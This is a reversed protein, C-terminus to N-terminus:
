QKWFDDNIMTKVLSEISKQNGQWQKPDTLRKIKENLEANDPPMPASATHGSEMHPISKDQPKAGTKYLNEIVSKSKTAMQRYITRVVKNYESLLDSEGSSIAMQTRPNSIHKEWVPEAMQYDPDSQIAHQMRINAQYSQQQPRIIEEQYFDKVAKRVVGALDATQDYDQSYRNSNLMSELQGVRQELLAAREREEGLKQAMRGSQQSATFMGQVDEPRNIGVRNLEDLLAKVDVQEEPQQAQPKAEPNEHQPDGGVQFPNQNTESTKKPENEPM